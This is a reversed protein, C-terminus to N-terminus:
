HVFPPHGPVQGIRVPKRMQSCDPLPGGSYYSLGYRWNRHINEVCTQRALWSVQNWIPRASALRDISPFAAVKVYAVGVVEALLVIGM